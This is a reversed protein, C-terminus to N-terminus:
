IIVYAVLFQSDNNCTGATKGKRLYHPDRKFLFDYCATGCYFSENRFRIYGYFKSSFVGLDSEIPRRDFLSHVTCACATGSSENVLHCNQEVCVGHSEVFCRLLVSHDIRDSCSTAYEGLCIYLRQDVFTCGDFIQCSGNELCDDILGYATQCAAM